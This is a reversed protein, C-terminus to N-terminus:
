PSKRGSRQERAWERKREIQGQREMESAREGRRDVSEPVLACKGDRKRERARARQDQSEWQSRGGSAYYDQQREYYNSKNPTHWSCYINNNDGFGGFSECGEEPCKKRKDRATKEEQEYRLCAAKVERNVRDRAAKEERKARDQAATEERERKRERELKEREVEEWALEFEERLWQLDAAIEQRAWQLEAAIARLM